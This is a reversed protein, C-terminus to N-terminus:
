CRRADAPNVFDHLDADWISIYILGCNQRVIQGKLSGISFRFHDLRRQLVQLLGQKIEETLKGDLMEELTALILQLDVSQAFAIETQRIRGSNRDFLYGLQIQNPVLIYSVARTNGWVGRSDQTPRGLAAEVISRSAGVPFGPVNRINATNPSQSRRPINNNPQSVVPADEPEPPAPAVSSPSPSSVPQKPSPQSAVPTNSQKVTSDTPEPSDTPNTTESKSIPTSTSIPSNVSEPKHTISIIAVTGILGAVVLSGLIWTPKQWKRPIPYTLTAPTSSYSPLSQTQVSTATTIDPPVTPQTTATPICSSAILQQSAPASQLAHLMQSATSYRDGAQPKIARNLIMALQPSVGPAYYQWLIEGTRPETQLQRPHKGTLLYIATLGLSYIDTAYVPRGTFQESPMYGPTGMVLSQTSYGLSDAVSRITEKVAGFDILVPKHNSSRLIINDPKIDRHIIGKSHIYDLVSLLSLLIERVATESLSGQAKIINSLTQGQIWEQVLYFQGNECFYAYLKPIQDSGEGLFELTTAEREFRRQIKDYIKPDNTAPKLQKIVCRRRSPLYTDEALFTESFGGIGLVEVVQYRNNLLTTTM